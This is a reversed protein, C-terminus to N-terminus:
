VLKSIKLNSQLIGGKFCAAHDEILLIATELGKETRLISGIARARGRIVPSSAGVLAQVLSQTTLRRVSIPAPGAGLLLVRKAWFPQDAAFPIVINPIGARLGAATTGAGGHHIVAKCRPFLWDHPADELVFISDPIQVGHLGSWGSLIVCRQHLETIAEIVARYIRDANRNVMSGFSVCVPPEGVSLFDMLADPPRYGSVGDLTWFGTVHIDDGWETPVPVVIPSWAFLLPTRSREPTQRFPWYLMRPFIGPMAKRVRGYGSNGGYWFIQTTLWHTFYSLWGPPVAPFAVNPFARTPAFVPFTQVSIDPIGLNRAFVHAGTTFLFAHIILDAGQCAALAQQAVQAAIGFVYGQMARAMRFPNQGANNIRRSIEVPDGALPTFPVGYGAALDTFRAPAALTPMHGAKQLGVALALFPQVDGRSGYSLISIKM